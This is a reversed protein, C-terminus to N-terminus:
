CDSRYIFDANPLKTLIESIRDRTHKLIELDDDVPRPTKHKFQAFWSPEPFFTDLLTTNALVKDAVQVFEHLMDSIVYVKDADESAQGADYFYRDIWHCNRWHILTIQLSVQTNPALELPVDCLGVIQKAKPGTNDWTDSFYFDAELYQDLGM